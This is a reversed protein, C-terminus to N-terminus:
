FTGLYVSWQGIVDFHLGSGSSEDFINAFLILLLLKEFLSGKQKSNAVTWFHMHIGFKASFGNSFARYVCADGNSLFLTIQSKQQM